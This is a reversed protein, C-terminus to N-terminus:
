GGMVLGETRELAEHLSGDYVETADFIQEANVELSHIKEFLNMDVEDNGLPNELSAALVEFGMIAWFIMLPLGINFFFGKSTEMSLPFAISFILFLMRCHQLYPLPTPSM